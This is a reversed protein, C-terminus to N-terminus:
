YQNIETTKKYCTAVGDTTLLISRSFVSLGPKNAQSILSWSKAWLTQSGFEIGDTDEILLIKLFAPCGGSGSIGGWAVVAAVDPPDIGVAGASVAAVIAVAFIEALVLPFLLFPAAAVEVTIAGVAACNPSFKWFPLIKTLFTIKWM